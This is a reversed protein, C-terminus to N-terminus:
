ITKEQCSYFLKTIKCNFYYKGGLKVNSLTATIALTWFLSM